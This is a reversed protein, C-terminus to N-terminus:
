NGFWVVPIELFRGRISVQTLPLIGFVYISNLEPVNQNMLIQIPSYSHYHTCDCIRNHFDQTHSPTNIYVVIFKLTYNM